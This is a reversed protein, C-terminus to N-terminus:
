PFSRPVVNVREGGTWLALVGPMDGACRLQPTFWAVRLHKDIVPTALADVPARGPPSGLKSLSPVALLANHCSQATGPSVRMDWRM